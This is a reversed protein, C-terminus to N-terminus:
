GILHDVVVSLVRRVHQQGHDGTRLSGQAKYRTGQPARVRAIGCVKSRPKTVVRLPARSHSSQDGQAAHPLSGANFLCEGSPPALFPSWSILFCLLFGASFTLPYTPMSKPSLFLRTQVKPSCPWTTACSHLLTLDRQLEEGRHEIPSLLRPDARVLQALMWPKSTRPQRRM